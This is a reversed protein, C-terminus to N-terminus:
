KSILLSKFSSFHLMPHSDILTVEEPYVNEGGSKIRGNRRGIVWVNGGDDISGIDGTDLWVEGTSVSPKALFRDWYRLMVHPGRTLIRGVHSSGDGSIKLEVHPAPKGVCVGQPQHVSNSTVNGFAQPLQGPIELTPDYLTMFTLSSCTETM